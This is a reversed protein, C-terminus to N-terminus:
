KGVIVATTALIVRSIAIDRVGRLVKEGVEEKPM